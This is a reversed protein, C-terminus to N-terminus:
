FVIAGDEDIDILRAVSEYGSKRFGDYMAQGVIRGSKEDETVALMTPGAGSITVGFAGADLAAGRVNEYSNNPYLKSRPGVFWRHAEQMKIGYLKPDSHLLATVIFQIDHIIDRASPKRVNELVKRAEQTNIGFGIPTALVFNGFDRPKHFNYVTHAQDTTEIVSYGGFYAPIANDPVSCDAYSLAMAAEHPSIPDEIGRRAMIEQLATLTAAPTAGSSGLGTGKVSIGKRVTVDFQGNLAGMCRENVLGAIHFILRGATHDLMNTPLEPADPEGVINKIKVEIGNAILSPTFSVTVLDSLDEWEGVNRKGEVIDLVKVPFGGGDYVPQNAVTAPASASVIEKSM